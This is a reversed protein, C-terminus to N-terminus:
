KSWKMEKWVDESYLKRADQFFLLHLIHDRYSVKAFAIRLVDFNHINWRSIISVRQVRTQHNCYLMWCFVVALVSYVVVLIEPM